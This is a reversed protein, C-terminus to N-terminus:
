NQPSNTDELNPPSIISLIKNFLKRDNVIVIALCEKARTLGQYLLKTYLFDPNPHIHGQLVGDKDYYFSSNMVMIVKDFEQGIIHHVDYDEYAEYDDYSSPEFNSRSYNIFIYGKDKYYGIIRCAEQVTNAYLIDIGRYDTPVIKKSKLDIVHSIFASIEPNARYIKSLEYEKDIHCKKLNSSIIDRNKEKNSLIQDPDSSFICVRHKPTNELSHYILDFDGKYIRQTEDVFIYSYDDLNIEKLQKPSIIKLNEIKEQIKLQSSQPLKCCAIILTKEGKDSFTKALDYILLTKGTGAKGTIHVVRGSFGKDSIERKIKEQQQTLFYNGQLFDEPANLPSVLYASPKFLEDITDYANSFNKIQLLITSLEVQRIENNLLEYCKMTDTVICYLKLNRKLYSLYYQNRLLQNRIAGEKKVKSKLEINLCLNDSIKLLDFEKSIHPIKFSYFFRDMDAISLDISLDSDFFADM